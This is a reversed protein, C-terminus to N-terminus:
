PRIVSARLYGNNKELSSLGYKNANLWLPTNGEDFSMSGQMELMYCLSDILSPKTSSDGANITLFTASISTALIILRKKM